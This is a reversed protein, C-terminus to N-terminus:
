DVGEISPVDVSFEGTISLKRLADCAATRWREGYAILCRLDADDHVSAGYPLAILRSQAMPKGCGACSHPDPRRGYASHWLNVAEGLALAHAEQATRHGQGIRGDITQMPLNGIEFKHQILLSFWRRWEFRYVPDNPPLDAFPDPEKRNQRIGVNDFNGVYLKPACTPMTPLTPLQCQASLEKFEDLSPAGSM